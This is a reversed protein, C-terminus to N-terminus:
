GELKYDMKPSNVGQRCVLAAKKIELGDKGEVLGKLIHLETILSFTHNGLGKYDASVFVRM